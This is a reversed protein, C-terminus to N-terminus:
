GQALASYSGELHRVLSHDEGCDDAECTPCYDFVIELEVGLSHDDRPQRLDEREERSGGEV